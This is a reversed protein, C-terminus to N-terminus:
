MFIPLKSVAMHGAMAFWGIAGLFALVKLFKNKALKLAFVGLLIYAVVCFLKQTLWPAAPTFPIFHTLFILYVGSLLLITDNIHPFVKLFRNQNLRSSTFSLWFRLTLLMVSLVVTLVHLHKVFLYM